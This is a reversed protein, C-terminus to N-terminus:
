ITVGRRERGIGDGDECFGEFGMEGDNCVGFGYSLFIVIEDVMLDDRTFRM